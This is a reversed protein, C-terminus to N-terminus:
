ERTKAIGFSAPDFGKTEVIFGGCVAAIFYSASFALLCYFLSGVKELLVAAVFPGIISGVDFAALCIGVATNRVQVPFTEPTIAFQVPSM